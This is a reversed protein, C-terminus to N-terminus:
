MAVGALMIEVVEVGSAFDFGCPAGCSPCLVVHGAVDDRSVSWISGCGDCEREMELEEVFLQSGALPTGLVLMQYAQQLAEPSFVPSARVRAGVIAEGSRAKTTLYDVVAVVAHYEHV